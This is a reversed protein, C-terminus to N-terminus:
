PKILPWVLAAAIVSGLWKAEKLAADSYCTSVGVVGPSDYVQKESRSKLAAAQEPTLNTFSM